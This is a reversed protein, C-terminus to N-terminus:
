AILDLYRFDFLPNPILYYYGILYDVSRLPSGMYYIYENYGTLGLRRRYNLAQRQTVEHEEYAYEVYSGDNYQIKVINGNEDCTYVTHETANRGDVTYTTKMGTPYGNRDYYIRREECQLGNGDRTTMRIINGDRDYELQHTYNTSLMDEWADDDLGYYGGGSRLEVEVVLDDEYRYLKEIANGTISKSFERILRGEEDYELWGNKRETEWYEYSFSTINKGSYNVSYDNYLNEDYLPRWRFAQPVGDDYEWEYTGSMNGRFQQILTCNGQEDYDYQASQAENHVLPCDANYSSIYLDMVPDYESIWEIEYYTESLLQARDDYAYDIRKYCIGKTDYYSTQTRVYVTESGSSLLMPLVLALVIAVVLAAAVSVILWTKKGKKPKKQDAVPVPQSPVPAPQPAQIVARPQGCRICFRDNESMANGCKSCFM